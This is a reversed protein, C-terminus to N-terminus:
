PNAAAGRAAGVGSAAQWGAAVGAAIAQILQDLREDTKLDASGVSTSQTKDTNSTKLDALKAQSAFLTSAHTVTEVRREETGADSSVDIQRIQFRACGTGLLLVSFTLLLLLPFHESRLTPVDAKAGRKIVISWILGILAVIVGVIEANISEDGVGQAAIWGGAMTLGHRVIGLTVSKSAPSVAAPQPGPASSNQPGM